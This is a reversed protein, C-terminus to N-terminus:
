LKVFVYYIMSSALVTWLVGAYITADYNKQYISSISNDSNLLEQMKMDLQNRLKVNAAQQEMINAHNNSAKGFSGVKSIASNLNVISDNLTTYANKVATLQETTQKCGTNYNQGAVTTTAPSGTKCRIYASYLSNFTNLNNMVQQELDFINFSQDTGYFNDTGPSNNFSTAPFDQKTSATAM